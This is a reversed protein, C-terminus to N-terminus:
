LEETDPQTNLMRHQAWVLSGIRDTFSAQGGVALAVTDEGDEDIYSLVVTVALPIAAKPLPFLDAVADLVPDTM